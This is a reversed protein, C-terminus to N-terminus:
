GKNGEDGKRVLVYSSAQAAAVYAAKESVPTTHGDNLRFWQDDQAQTYAIWHGSRASGSHVSFGTIDYRAETTVFRSEKAQYIPLDLTIAQLSPLTFPRNDKGHVIRGRQFTMNRRDVRINLQDPLQALGLTKTVPVYQAQSFGSADQVAERLPQRQLDRQPFHESMFRATIVDQLTLPTQDKGLNADLNSMALAVTHGIDQRTLTTIVDTESSLPGATGKTPENRQNAWQQMRDTAGHYQSQIVETSKEDQQDESPQAPYYQECLETIKAAFEGADGQEGPEAIGLLGVQEALYELLQALEATPLRDGNKVTLAADLYIFKSLETEFANLESLTQRERHSQYPIQQDLWNKIQDLMADADPLCYLQERQNPTLGENAAIDEIENLVFGQEAPTLAGPTAGFVSQLTVIRRAITNAVKVKETQGDTQRYARFADLREPPSLNLLANYQSPSLGRSQANSEILQELKQEFAATSLPAQPLSKRLLQLGTHIYCTNASPEDLGLSPQSTPALQALHAKCSCWQQVARQIGQPLLSLASRLVYSVTNRTVDRHPVQTNEWKLVMKQLTDYRKLAETNQGMAEKCFGFVVVKQAASLQKLMPILRKLMRPKIKGPQLLIDLVDNAHSNSACVDVGAKMLSVARAHHPHTHASTQALSQLTESTQSWHTYYSTINDINLPDSNLTSLSHTLADFRHGCYAERMTNNAVHAAEDFSKQATAASHNQFATAFSRKRSFSKSQSNHETCRYNQQYSRDSVSISPM